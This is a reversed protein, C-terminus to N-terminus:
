RQKEDMEQCVLWARPDSRRDCFVPGVPLEARDSLWPDLASWAWTDMGVERRRDNKGRRVLVSGRGQDLDTETLSLAAQIRLGARWLLVILGNLRHGHRGPGVQRM